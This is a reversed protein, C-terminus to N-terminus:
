FLTPQNHIEIGRIWNLLQEGVAPHVCNRLLQDTRQNFKHTGLKFGLLKEYDSRNGGNIDLDHQGTINPLQRNSWVLHRGASSTPEILPPYFPKVNEIIWEGDYYNQLLLIQQYLIMSPYVPKVVESNGWGWFRARSHTQCPPSAWIFDFERFHDLLFQHADGVIVTDDPFRGAYFSAITPNIEVATVECDTWNTRNGGLGAFLNLIKM